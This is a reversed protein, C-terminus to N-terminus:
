LRLHRIRQKLVSFYVEIRNLMPLWPTSRLFMVGYEDYVRMAEKSVHYSVNDGLIMFNSGHKVVDKLIATYSQTNIATDYIEIGELGIEASIAAM